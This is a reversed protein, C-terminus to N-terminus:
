RPGGDDDSAELVRRLAIVRVAEAHARAAILAFLGAPSEAAEGAVDAQATVAQAAFACTDGIDHWATLLDALGAHVAQSAVAELTRVVPRTM